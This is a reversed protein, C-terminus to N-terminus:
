DLHWLASNQCCGGSQMKRVLSVGSGQGCTSMKFLYVLEDGQGPFKSDHIYDYTSSKKLKLINDIYGGQGWFRRAESILNRLSKSGLKSWKDFVQALEEKTLKKGEGNEVLLGKLLLEKRVVMGIASNKANPTLAVQTMIQGCILDMAERYDGNAVPHVHTGIHVAARTMSLNKPVVYFMRCPCLRHCTPLTKYYRCVLTCKSPVSPDPGPVLVESSSGDWYLDNYKGSRLFHACEENMCRLHGMCKVYKFSLDSKSGSLNTTQMETWAHGDFKRDMGDLRSAAGDKPAVIAPLEFIADGNYQRPLYKVMHHPYSALDVIKLMCRAIPQNGIAVLSEYIRSSSTPNVDGVPVHCRVNRGSPTSQDQSVENRITLDSLGISDSGLTRSPTESIIFDDSPNCSTSSLGTSGNIMVDDSEFGDGDGSRDVLELNVRSRLFVRASNVPRACRIVADEDESSSFITCEPVEKVSPLTPMLCVCSRQQFSSISTPTLISERNPDFALVGGIVTYSGPWVKYYSGKDSVYSKQFVTHCLNGDDDFEEKEDLLSM